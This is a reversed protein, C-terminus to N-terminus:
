YRLHQHSEHFDGYSRSPIGGWHLEPRRRGVAFVLAGAAANAVDDHGGPAHDISDKGSRSTRRELGVLQAVLRKDDLLTVERSNIAPLLESYIQSRNKDSLRYGIGLKQFSEQVWVAGYADGRVESVGYLRLTEVFEAVVAAPSFPPRRERICALIAGRDHARFAIAMTMSDASGGSPDVFCVYAEHQPPLERVGPPVCDQVSELSVFRELDSRFEGGYEASAAVPDKEYARAVVREPLSPNFDRSSGKAVLVLKDGKQGYGKEWAEYVAGRRAYPSSIVALMGGTTALSPRVADLIAVDPNTSASDESLWFCAEDAVVAVTTVGRVGRFSASRIEIDIGNRLSISEATRGVVLGGLMPSAEIIGLVYSLVVGAQKATPALCLVIPREGPVIVRSHDVLCAVFAILTAIARSKGGRRGVIGWIEECRELPERDRGTLKTFLAREDDTLAEGWAAILIVRWAKWSDGALVGGLLAKDTLASRMSIAAKPAGKSVKTAAKAHGAALKPATSTM